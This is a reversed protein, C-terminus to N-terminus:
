RFELRHPPLRIWAAQCGVHELASASAAHIEFGSESPLLPRDPRCSAGRRLGSGLETSTPVGPFRGIAVRSPAFMRAQHPRDRGQQRLPPPGLPDAALPDVARAMVAPSHWPLPGRPPARHPRHPRSRSRSWRPVGQHQLGAAAVRSSIFQPQHPRGVSPAHNRIPAAPAQLCFAHVVPSTAPWRPPSPWM